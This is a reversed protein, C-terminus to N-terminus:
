GVLGLVILLPGLDGLLLHQLMHASLLQDEGIADLPSVLALVSLLLGAAFLAALVPRAHAAGTRRRLRVYAQAYLAAAVAGLVLPLADLARRTELAAAAM